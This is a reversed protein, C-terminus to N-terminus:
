WTCKEYVIHILIRQMNSENWKMWEDMGNTQMAKKTDTKTTVTSIDNNSNRHSIGNKM